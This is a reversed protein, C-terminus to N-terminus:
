VKCLSGQVVSDALDQKVMLVGVEQGTSSKITVEWYNGQDGTIEFVNDTGFLRYQDGIM